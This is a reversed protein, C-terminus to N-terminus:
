GNSFSYFGGGMDVNNPSNTNGRTGFWLRGASDCKGDNFFNFSNKPKDEEVSALVDTM